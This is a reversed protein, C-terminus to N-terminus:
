YPVKIFEATKHVTKLVLGELCLYIVMILVKSLIISNAYFCLGNIGKRMDIHCTALYIKINGDLNFM